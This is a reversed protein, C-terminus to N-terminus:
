QFGHHSDSCVSTNALKCSSPLSIWNLCIFCCLHWQTFNPQKSNSILSTIQNLILRGKGTTDELVSLWMWNKWKWKFLRSIEILISYLEKFTDQTNDQYNAKVTLEKLEGLEYSVVLGMDRRLIVCNHLCCLSRVYSLSDTNDYLNGSRKKM